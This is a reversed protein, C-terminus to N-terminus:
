RQAASVVTAPLRSQGQQLGTALPDDTGVLIGVMTGVYEGNLYMSGGILAGEKPIMGFNVFGERIGVIDGVVDEIISSVTSVDSDIVVIEAAGCGLWRGEIM